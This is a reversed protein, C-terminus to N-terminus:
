WHPTCRLASHSDHVRECKIGLPLPWRVAFNTLLPFVCVGEPWPTSSPAPRRFVRQLGRSCREWPTYRRQLKVGHRTWESDGEPWCFSVLWSSVLVNDLPTSKSAEWGCALSKGSTPLRIHLLLSSLLQAKCPPFISVKRHSQSSRKIWTARRELPLKGTEKQSPGVDCLCCYVREQALKKEASVSERPLCFVECLEVWHSTTQISLSVTVRDIRATNQTLSTSLPAWPSIVRWRNVRFLAPPTPSDGHWWYTCQVSGAAFGEIGISAIGGDGFVHTICFEAIDGLLNVRLLYSISPQQWDLMKFDVYLAVTKWVM